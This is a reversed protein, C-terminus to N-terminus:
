RGRNKGLERDIYLKTAHRLRQVTAMLEATTEDARKLREASVMKEAQRKKPDPVPLSLVNM